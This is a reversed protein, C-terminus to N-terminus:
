IDLEITEKQKINTKVLLKKKLFTKNWKRSKGVKVFLVFKCIFTNINTNGTKIEEEESLEQTYINYELQFLKTRM